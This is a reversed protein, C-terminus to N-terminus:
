QIVKVGNPTGLSYLQLAHKGRPLKQEQQAGATPKNIKGWKGGMPKHM